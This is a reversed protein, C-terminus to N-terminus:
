YFTYDYQMQELVEPSDLLESSEVNSYKGELIERILGCACPSLEQGVRFNDKFHGYDWTNDGHYIYIYLNPIDVPCIINLPLLNEVMNFDEGRELFPYKVNAKVLVEKKCLISGEWLRKRSLYANKTLNDYMIWYTLFCIPKHMKIIYNMQLELRSNHFWDDSDWQCIYEGSAYNVSLNRLEVLSLKPKTSIQYCRITPDDITQLFEHIHIDNDEYVIVLEKNPYTQGKFCAM